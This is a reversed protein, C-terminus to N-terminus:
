SEAQKKIIVTMQRILPPPRSSVRLTGLEQYFPPGLLFRSPHATKEYIETSILLGFGFIYYIRNPSPPPPCARLGSRM